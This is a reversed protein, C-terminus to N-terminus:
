TGTPLSILQQYQGRKLNALTDKICRDQYDRLKAIDM